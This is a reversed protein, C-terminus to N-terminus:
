DVTDILTRGGEIVTGGIGAAYAQVFESVGAARTPSPISVRQDKETTAPSYLM